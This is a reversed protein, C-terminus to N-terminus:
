ECQMFVGSLAYIPWAKRKEERIDQQIEIVLARVAKGQRNYLLCVRESSLEVPYLTTKSEWLRAEKYGPPLLNLLRAIDGLMVTMRNSGPPDKFLDALFQHWTSPM